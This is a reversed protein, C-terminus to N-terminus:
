NPLQNLWSILTKQTILEGKYVVGRKTFKISDDGASKPMRAQEEKLWSKQEAVSRVKGSGLVQSAQHPTLDDLPIVRVDSGDLEVVTVGNEIVEQQISLPCARLSNYQRGSTLLLRPHILGRGCKELNSLEAQNFGAEILEELLGPTSDLSSVLKQAFASLDQGLKSREAWLTRALEKPSVTLSKM